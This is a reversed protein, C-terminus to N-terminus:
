PPRITNSIFFTILAPCLQLLSPLFGSVTKINGRWAASRFRGRQRRARGPRQDDYACAARRGPEVALAVAGREGGATAVRVPRGLTVLGARYIEMLASPGNPSGAQEWVRDLFSVIATVAAERSFLSRCRAFLSSAHALEPPFDEQRTNLNIGIGIIITDGLSEALIGGIKCEDLLLDNVWKIMIQRGCLQRLAQSAACAALV